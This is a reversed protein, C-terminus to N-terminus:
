LLRSVIWQQLLRCCDAGMGNSVGFGGDANRIAIDASLALCYAVVLAPSYAVVLALCYCACIRGLLLLLCGCCFRASQRLCGRAVTPRM